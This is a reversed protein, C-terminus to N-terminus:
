QAGEETNIKYADLSRTPVSPLTLVLGQGAPRPTPAAGGAALISRVDAARWRRFEVARRLAALLADTGHAAHLTAIDALESSLKSVGAAAAGVL